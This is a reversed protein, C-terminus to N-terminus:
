TYSRALKGWRNERAQGVGKSEREWTRLTRAKRGVAAAAQPQSAGMMRFYAALVRKHWHQAPGKVPVISAPERGDGVARRRGPYPPEPDIPRADVPTTVPLAPAHLAAARL